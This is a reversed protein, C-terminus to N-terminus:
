LSWDLPCTSVAGAFHKMPVVQGDLFAANNSNVTATFLLEGNRQFLLQNKRITVVYSQSQTLYLVSLLNNRLEPVHLVRHFELLRGNKGKVVPQFCVSGIGTSHIVENNALRIPTRHPKYTNFWHRHPTMHCTAGTDTNWDTGADSILPSNPNTYDLSSANGAFEAVQPTEAKDQASNAEKEKGKSAEQKATKTAKQYRWCDPQIHGNKGCFNCQKREKSEKSKKSAAKTFMAQDAARPERNKQEQLFAEKVTKYSCDVMLLLSSRFSSYAEQGLARVLAMAALDDDLKDLDYNTERLMKVRGIAEEVRTIVATLPEDDQLSISLLQDYALFRAPASSTAHVKKIEKWLKVADGLHNRVLAQQAPELALWLLGSAIDHRMDWAEQADGATGPRTATENVIGWGGKTMLLAQMNSRWETYNDDNLKDFTIDKGSM